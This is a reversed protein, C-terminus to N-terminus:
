ELFRGDERAIELLQLFTRKGVLDDQYSKAASRILSLDTSGSPSPTTYLEDLAKDIANTGKLYGSFYEYFETFTKGESQWVAYTLGTFTGGSVTSLLKVDDLLALEDLMALTGLAFTAARYGGGSLCLAIPGFPKKAASDPSM